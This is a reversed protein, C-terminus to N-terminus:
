LNYREKLKVVMTRYLSVAAEHHDSNVFNCVPKIYDELLKKALVKKQPDKSIYEAIIPGVDDYESFISIYQADKKMTQDRFNRLTELYKCYDDYGLCDVIVTTIFCGGKERDVFCSCISDGGPYYKRHEGCWYEGYSNQDNLNLKACDACTTM